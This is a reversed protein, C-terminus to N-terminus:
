ARVRREDPMHDSRCVSRLTEGKALRECIEEAIEYTYLSPRGKKIKAVAPM